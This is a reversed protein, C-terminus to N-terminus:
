ISIFNEIAKKVREPNNMIEKRESQALEDISKKVGWKGKLSHFYANIFDIGLGIAIVVDDVSIEQEIVECEIDIPNLNVERTINKEAVIDDADGEGVDQGTVHLLLWARAKRTAKGIIADTGMFNNVKVIIELDKTKSEGNYSWEVSMIIVAEKSDSKPIRPTISYSLGQVKSLLRGMGEKTIYCNGAIINWENGVINVGTMTAEIMCDKVVEETYVKDTKFGLKKGQLAMIPKMVESTLLNQLNSMAEAIAFTKSFATAQSQAILGNKAATDLANITELKIINSM